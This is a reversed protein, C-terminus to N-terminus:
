QNFGVSFLRKSAELDNQQNAEIAAIIACDRPAPHQPFATGALRHFAGMADHYMGAVLEGPPANNRPCHDLDLVISILLFNWQNQRVM